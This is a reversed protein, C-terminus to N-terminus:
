TLLITMSGLGNNITFCCKETATNNNDTSHMKIIMLLQNKKQMFLIYM